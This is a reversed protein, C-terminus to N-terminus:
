GLPLPVILQEATPGFLFNLYCFCRNVATCEPVVQLKHDHALM